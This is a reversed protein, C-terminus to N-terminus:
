SSGVGGENRCVCVCRWFNNNMTDPRNVEVEVVYQEPESLKLTEYEASRAYSRKLSGAMKAERVAFGALCSSIRLSYRATISLKM